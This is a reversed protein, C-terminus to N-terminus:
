QHGCLAMKMSIAQISTMLQFCPTAGRPNIGQKGYATCSSLNALLASSPKSYSGRVLYRTANHAIVRASAIDTCYQNDESVLLNNEFHRTIVLFIM